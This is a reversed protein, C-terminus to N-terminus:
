GKLAIVSVAMWHIQWSSFDPSTSASWPYSASPFYNLVLYHLGSWPESALDTTVLFEEQICKIQVYCDM